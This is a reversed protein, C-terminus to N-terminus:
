DFISGAPEQPAPQDPTPVPSPEAADPFAQAYAGAATEDTWTFSNGDPTLVELTVVGGPTMAYLNIALEPHEARLADFREPSSISKGTM